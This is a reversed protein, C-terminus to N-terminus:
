KVTNTRSVAPVHDVGSVSTTTGMGVKLGVSATVGAVTVTPCAILNEPLIVGAPAAAPWYTWSCRKVPLQFVKTLTLTEALPAKLTELTAAM